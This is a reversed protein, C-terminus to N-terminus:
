GRVGLLEGAVAAREALRLSSQMALSQVALCGETWGKRSIEASSEAVSALPRWAVAPPAPDFIPVGEKGLDRVM